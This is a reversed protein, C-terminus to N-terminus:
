SAKSLLPTGSVHNILAVYKYSILHLFPNFFHFFFIRAITRRRVFYIFNMYYICAIANKFIVINTYFSFVSLKLPSYKFYFLFLFITALFPPLIALQQNSAVFRDLQVITKALYFSQIVVSGAM